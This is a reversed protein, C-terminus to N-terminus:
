RADAESSETKLQIQSYSRLFLESLNPWRGKGLYRCGEDGIRCEDVIYMKTSLGLKELLPLEAKVLLTM